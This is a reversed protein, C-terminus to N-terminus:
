ATCRGPAANLIYDAARQAQAAAAVVMRKDSRLKALWGQIYAAQNALVAPSIGAEACLYAASCEAILEEFSYVPSGFPAAETISKRNLRKPSGTAHLKSSGQGRLAEYPACSEHCFDFARLGVLAGDLLLGM